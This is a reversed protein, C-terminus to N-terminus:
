GLKSSRTATKENARFFSLMAMECRDCGYIINKATVFRESQYESFGM